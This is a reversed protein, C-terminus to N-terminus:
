NLNTTTSISSSRAQYTTAIRNANRPSWTTLLQSRRRPCTMCIHRNQLFTCISRNQQLSMSIPVLYPPTQYKPKKRRFAPPPLLLEDAMFSPPRRLALSKEVTISPILEEPAKFDPILQHLPTPLFRKLGIIKLPKHNEPILDNHSTPKPKEEVVLPAKTTLRKLGIVIREPLFPRTSFL